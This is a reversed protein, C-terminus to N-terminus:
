ATEKGNTHARQRELWEELESARFRVAGRPRGRTDTKAFLRFGPLVGDEFRDPVANTSFGLLKGVERANLLPEILEGRPGLREQL